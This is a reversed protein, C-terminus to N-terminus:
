KRFSKILQNLENAASIVKPLYTTMTENVGGAYIISRSANILFLKNHLNKMLNKLDNGQAGIGPILLPINEKASSYKKIEKLHNAGIVFGTQSESWQLSKKAIVEHLEKKGVRLTQFDEAGKNSTRILLYVLKDKRELFPSVSDYGMYPSLTISDFHLNDLYAKAYRESTNGIDGRKADCIKIRNRPIAKVTEELAEIGKTGAAEYFALNIKYGACYDYTSEIIKLNFALMPNKYRLYTAPVKDYDTDLGIVLNSKSSRIVKALKRKYIM